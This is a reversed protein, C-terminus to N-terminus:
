RCALLVGNLHRKSPPGIIARKYYGGEYVLIKPGGRVFGEPYACTYVNSVVRIYVNIQILGLTTQLIIKM